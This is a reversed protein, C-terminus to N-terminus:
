PGLVNCRTVQPRVLIVYNPVKQIKDDKSHLGHELGDITRSTLIIKNIMIYGRSMSLQRCIGAMNFHYYVRQMQQM